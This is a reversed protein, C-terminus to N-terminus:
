IVMKGELMLSASSLKIYPKLESTEYEIWLMRMINKKFYTLIYKRIIGICTTARGVMKQLIIIM